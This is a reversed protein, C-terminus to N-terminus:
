KDGREPNRRPKYIKAWIVSGLAVIASGLTIISNAFDAHTSLEVAVGILTVFIGSLELAIPLAYTLAKESM